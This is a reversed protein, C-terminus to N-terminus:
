SSTKGKVIRTPKIPTPGPTPTIEPESTVEPESTFEPADGANGTDAEVTAPKLAEIQGRVFALMARGADAAAQLAVVQRDGETLDAANATATAHADIVGWRQLDANSRAVVHDTLAAVAKVASLARIPHQDFVPVGALADDLSIRRIPDPM